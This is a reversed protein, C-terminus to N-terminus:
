TAFLCQTRVCMCASVTSLQTICLAFSVTTSDTSSWLDLTWPLQIVVSYLFGVKVSFKGLIGYYLKMNKLLESGDCHFGFGLFERIKRWDGLHWRYFRVWFKYWNPLTILFQNIYFPLTWGLVLWLPGSSSYLYLEIREKVESSSPRTPPWRWKVPAKGKPCLGTLWQVPRSRFIEGRGRGPNSRRVTWGM